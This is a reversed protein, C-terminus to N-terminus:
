SMAPTMMLICRSIYECKKCDICGRVPKNGINFIDTEIGDRRLVGEVISLASYTGGKAM